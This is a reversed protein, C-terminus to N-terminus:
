NSLFEILCADLRLVLFTGLRLTPILVVFNGEIGAAVFLERIPAGVPYISLKM